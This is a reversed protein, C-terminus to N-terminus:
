LGKLLRMYEDHKGIWFWTVTDGQLLGLSRYGNGIRVSYVPRIKGVRKFYLGPADPNEFWIQYAKDAKNQIFKPLKYYLNWFNPLAYSNM